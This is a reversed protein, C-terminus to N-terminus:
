GAPCDGAVDLLDLKDAALDVRELVLVVLHLGLIRGGHEM